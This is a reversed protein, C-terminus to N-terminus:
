RKQTKRRFTDYYHRATKQLLYQPVAAEMATPTIGFVDKLVSDGEPCVSDMQLSRYNDRSFPKGPVYELFNAQVASFFKGLPIVQRRLKLIKAIYNVIATLTYTHPGCLNYRKGYTSPMNISKAFANAVDEVFVPAFRSNGCALPFVYPTIKLLGAFRNIFSDDPGFIVSPRFSTVDMDVAAHVHHEAEGKSRLYYSSGTGPDANLASMHILRRINHTRCAKIVKDALAVHAHYFGKGNDRKENLIGVLNIVVDQGSFYKKLAKEDHVNATIVEVTPLVLLDRHRERNRTLVRVNHGDRVLCSIVHHGVFGTGGLICINRKM